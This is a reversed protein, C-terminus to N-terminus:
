AARAREVNATAVALTLLGAEVRIPFEYRAVIREELQGHPVFLEPPVALGRSWYDRKFAVHDRALRDLAGTLQRGDVSEPGYVSALQRVVPFFDRDEELAHAQQDAASWVATTPQLHMKAALPLGMDAMLANTLRCPCASTPTPPIILDIAVTGVRASDSEIPRGTAIRGDPDRRRQVISPPLHM